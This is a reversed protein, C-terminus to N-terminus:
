AAQHALFEAAAQRFSIPPRGLARELAPDTRAFEGRRAAKFMGIAIAIRNEPVGLQKLRDCFAEDSITIRKIERGSLDSLIAAIDSFDLMDRGTLPPTIGDFARAETLALADIAALDAHATWAIPGDEPLALTGSAIQSEVAQWASSAYFGHRLATFPVSSDSLIQETAAHNLMPPFRSDRASAMQSTYLIRSAGAAKAADIVNAHQDPMNTGATNSSVFLLRDVGEFARALSAPDAYDAVRVRVGREALETAKDPDRVSVGIHSAPTTELLHELIQRGLQGTAGAVIIM